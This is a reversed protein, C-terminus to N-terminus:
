RPGSVRPVSRKVLPDKEAHAQESGPQHKFYVYYGPWDDSIANPNRKETIFFEVLSERKLAWGPTLIDQYGMAGALETKLFATAYKNTLGHVVDSPTV